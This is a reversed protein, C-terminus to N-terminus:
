RIGPRRRGGGPGAAYEAERERERVREEIDQEIEPWYDRFPDGSYKPQSEQYDLRERDYDVRESM